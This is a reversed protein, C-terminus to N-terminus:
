STVVTRQTDNAANINHKSDQDHNSCDITNDIKQTARMKKQKSSPDSTLPRKQAAKLIRKEDYPRTFLPCLQHNQYLNNVSCKSVYRFTNRRESQDFKYGKVKPKTM